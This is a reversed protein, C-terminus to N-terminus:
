FPEITYSTVWHKGSPLIMTGERLEFPISSTQFDGHGHWPEICIFPAKLPKWFALWRYGSCSVKVGHDGDSLSVFPALVDEFLWTPREEFMAESLPISSAAKIKFDENYFTLDSQPYFEIRYDELSKESNLPVKFAPHLGFQFPMAVTSLNEVKYDILVQRNMLTYRIWLAFHFPYQKRTEENDKLRWTCSIEDAEILEFEFNRAFGHQKMPYEVGDIIIKHGTTSGVIPFLTPSHYGWFKVDADHMYELQSEKSILHSMQAGKAVFQVILYENELRM